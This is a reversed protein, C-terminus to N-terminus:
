SVHFITDREKEHHHSGAYTFSFIWSISYVRILELYLDCLFLTLLIHSSASLLRPHALAPIPSRLKLVKEQGPINSTFCLFLKFRKLNMKKKIFLFFKLHRLLVSKCCEKKTAELCPIPAQWHSLFVKAIREKRFGSNSM